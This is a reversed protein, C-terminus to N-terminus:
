TMMTWIYLRCAMESYPRYDISGQPGHWSAPVESQWNGEVWIHVNSVMFELSRFNGVQTAGHELTQTPHITCIETRTSAASFLSCQGLKRFNGTTKM